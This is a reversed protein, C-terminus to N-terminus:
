SRMGDTSGTAGGPRPRLRAWRRRRRVAADSAEAPSVSTSEYGNRACCLLSVNPAAVAPTTAAIFIAFGSSASADHIRVDSRGPRM